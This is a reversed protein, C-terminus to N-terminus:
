QNLVEDTWRSAIEAADPWEGDFSVVDAYEDEPLWNKKASEPLELDGEVYRVPHGGAEAFITQGEDSFAFDLAAKALDPQDTNANCPMVSPAYISGDTPVTVTSDVGAKAMLRQTAINTFDYGIYIPTEGSEFTAESFGAPNFQGAAELDAFYSMAADLDLDEGGGMASAAALVMAQATGSETPDKIAILGKYKPDALDAWSTPPDSVADTNVLFTPVGTVVAWWSDDDGHLNDPVSDTNEPVYRLGADQAELAPAFAIGIDGCVPVKSANTDIFESIVDASSADDNDTRNTGAGPGTSSYGNCGWDNQDCLAQWFKGYNNWDDPQSVTYFSQAQEGAKDMDPASTDLDNTATAGGSCGTILLPLTLTLAALGLPKFHTM